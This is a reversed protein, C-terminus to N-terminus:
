HERYGLIRAHVDRLVRGKHPAAKDIKAAYGIREVLLTYKQFECEDPLLLTDSNYLEGFYVENANAKVEADLVKAVLEGKQYIADEGRKRSAVESQPSEAPEGQGNTM